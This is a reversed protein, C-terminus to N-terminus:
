GNQLTPLFGESISGILGLIGDLVDRPFFSLVFTVVVSVVLSLLTFLVGGRGVCAAVPYDLM